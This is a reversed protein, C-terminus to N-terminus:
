EETRDEYIVFPTREFVHERGLGGVGQDDLFVDEEGSSEEAFGYSAQAQEPRSPRRAPSRNIPILDEEDTDREGFRSSGNSPV